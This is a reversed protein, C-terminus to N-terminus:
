TQNSVHLAGNGKGLQQFGGGANGLVVAFGTVNDGTGIHWLLRNFVTLYANSHEFAHQTRNLNLAVRRDGFLAHARM